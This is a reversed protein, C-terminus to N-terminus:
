DFNNEQEKASKRLSELIRSLLQLCTEVTQENPSYLGSKLAGLVLIVDIDADASFADTFLSLMKDFIADQNLYQYWFTVKHYDGRPLGQACVQLLVKNQSALLKQVQNPKM